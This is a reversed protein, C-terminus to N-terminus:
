NHTVSPPLPVVALQTAGPPFTGTPFRRAGWGPVARLPVVSSPLSGLGAVGVPHPSSCASDGCGLGPRAPSATRGSGPVARGRSWNQGVHGRAREASRGFNMWVSSISTVATGSLDFLRPTSRSQTSPQRRAAALTTIM